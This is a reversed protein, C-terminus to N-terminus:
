MWGGFWRSAPVSGAIPKSRLMHGDAAGIQDLANMVPAVEVIMELKPYEQGGADHEGHQHDSADM